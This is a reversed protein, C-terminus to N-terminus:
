GQGKRNGWGRPNDDKFEDWDRVKKVAADDDDDDDLKSAGKAAAAASSDSAKKAQEIEYEAQERADHLCPKINSAKNRLAKMNRHHELEGTLRGWPQSCSTM